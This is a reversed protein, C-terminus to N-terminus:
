KSIAQLFSRKADNLDKKTKYRLIRGEGLLNELFSFLEKEIDTMNKIDEQTFSAQSLDLFDIFTKYLHDPIEIIRQM